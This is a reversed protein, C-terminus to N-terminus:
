PSPFAIHETSGRAQATWARVPKPKQRLGARLKGSAHETSEPRSAVLETIICRASLSSRLLPKKRGASAELLNEQDREVENMAGPSKPHEYSSM